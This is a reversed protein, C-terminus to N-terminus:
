NLLSNIELNILEFLRQEQNNKDNTNQLYKFMSCFENLEEDNIDVNFDVNLQNLVNFNNVLSISPKSLFKLM